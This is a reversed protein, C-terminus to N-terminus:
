REKIQDPKGTVPHFADYGTGCEDTQAASAGKDEGLWGSIKM